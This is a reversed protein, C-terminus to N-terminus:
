DSCIMSQGTTGRRDKVRPHWCEYAYARTQKFAERISQKAEGTELKEAVAILAWIVDEVEEITM